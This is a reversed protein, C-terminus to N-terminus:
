VYWKNKQTNTSIIKSNGTSIIEVINSKDSTLEEGTAHNKIKTILFYKTIKDKSQPETYTTIESEGGFTKILKEKGDEVKYLEYTLYNEANFELIVNSNKTKGSLSAPQIELFNTSKEKPLNFQSFIEKIKYIQPTFDNARVVVHNKDLEIADLEIETVSGPTKFDAPTRNDYIQAFFSKAINTPQNGGTLTGIDEGSLDGIWVAVTDESTLAISYADTNKDGVGVTGTKAAIMYPLSKLKKATGDQAASILTSLTLYNADERLIQDPVNNPEYITRGSKDTIKSVFNASVFKGNQAFSSYASALIKINTGYTMGGLALAYGNDNEDFEIGFRTAYRKAKNIGLYSLTKVAPINISKSISDRVSVYGAYGQSFNKPAYGNINLEDDLIKTAPSIINENIAPGYVLLPKITSGPQRKAKLISYASDGYFAEIGSTKNNISIGAKDCALDENEIATKLAEQKNNDYYTYIKYEGIAIQKAPMKLIRSAEDIAAQSYSNQGNDFGENIKLDLDKAINEGYEENSIKGDRKMESLVLNRRKLCKESHNIPCYNGPSKIMGALMASEHLELDSASKSFYFNSANAIGYINNGCYIINLYNELIEDKSLEREMQRALSIEKIKRSYTKESSLHTNKILQQSITSAGEAAEGKKINKLMAKVIRKPNIGNHSYFNKDEISMFSQLTQQSLQSIKIYQNNFINKDSILNNEKDFVEIKLNPNILKNRDFTESKATSFIVAIFASVAVFMVALINAMVILSIKWAKKM